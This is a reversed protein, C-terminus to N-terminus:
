ELNDPEDEREKAKAISQEATKQQQELKLRSDM